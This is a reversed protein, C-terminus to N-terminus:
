ATLLRSDEAEREAVSQLIGHFDVIAQATNISLLRENANLVWDYNHALKSLSPQSLRFTERLLRKARNRNVAKGVAKRSATIGLRHYSLDNPLVFATM